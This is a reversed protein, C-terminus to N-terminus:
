DDGLDPPIEDLDRFREIRHFTMFNADHANHAGGLGDDFATRSAVILDDGEFLWDVYQFAHRTVDPHHLVVARVDWDRLNESRALALTNRTRPPQGLDFRPPVWNTLTWYSGTEPDFRITFKKAGGPFRIFDAEPDFSSCRGDAGVRIVAAYGPEPKSDVRLINVIEGEPTVVANGELWGGFATEDGLWSLDSGIPDTVTWSAANLLDADVPASMMFARFHVGWGGPGEADEMARWLRGDHEVVPVPACHYKKGPLLLGSSSDAPETWTRGGDESRRIVAEGYERSTGILYLADRHAFLTSWWQGKLTAIQEWSAGRDKSEFVVTVDKSSGPGFFDHSAVYSGDPLVAISPSGIYQRSSAPSHDIVVGPVQSLDPTPDVIPLLALLLALPTM